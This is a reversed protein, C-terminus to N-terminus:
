LEDEHRTEVEDLVRDLVEVLQDIERTLVDALLLVRLRSLEGTGGCGLLRVGRRWGEEVIEDCLRVSLGWMGGFGCFDVLLEPHAAQLLALRNRMYEGKVRANELYTRGEFLPDRYSVLTEITAYAMNVDLIRAGAAAGAPAGGPVADALDARAITMGVGAGAGTWLLDPEVDYREVAFLVGTRGFSRVEDVGLLVDHERCVAAITSLWARDAIRCGGEGQYVEVVLLAALDVPVRGSAVVEAVGGPEDLLEPVPRTELMAALADEEGNFAVRRVWRPRSCGRRGGGPDLVGGHSAGECGIVFFPYDAYLPEDADRERAGPRPERAIGLDAMLRALVDHGHARVFRDYARRQALEVAVRGAAAGGGSVVTRYPARGAFREACLGGVLRALDQPTRVDELPAGAALYDGAGGDRRWALGHRVLAELAAALRPHHEDVLRRAGGLHADVYVGGPSAVFMGHTPYALDVIPAPPELTGPIVHRAHECRTAAGDPHDLGEPPVVATGRNLARGCVVVDEFMARETEAHLDYGNITISGASTM